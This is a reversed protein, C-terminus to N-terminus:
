AHLPCNEMLERVPLMFDVTPFLYQFFVRQYGFDNKKSGESIQPFGPLAQNPRKDTTKRCHRQDDGAWFSALAQRSGGLPTARFSFNVVSAGLIVCAEPAINLRATYPADAAIESFNTPSESKRKSM